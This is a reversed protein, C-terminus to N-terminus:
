LLYPMENNVTRYNAKGQMLLEVTAVVREPRISKLSAKEDSPPNKHNYTTISPSSHFFDYLAVAKGLPGYMYPTEPGFIVATKLGAMTAFHANGSDNSVLVDAILFLELLESLTATQGAFDICRKNGVAECVYKTVPMHNPTGVLAVSHQPYKSLLKKIVEVFMEKPYDRMPMMKGVTPAVLILPGGAGASDLKKKLADAVAENSRYNPEKLESTAIPGEWNYYRPHPDLSSKTLALFNKAVHMNQNFNCKIDLFEGRYLGGMTYGYFGARFKTPILFSIIASIRTFLEFDIVV